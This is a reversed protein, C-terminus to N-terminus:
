QRTPQSHNIGNAFNLDKLLTKNSRTSKHLIFNSTLQKFLRPHFYFCNLIIHLDTSM